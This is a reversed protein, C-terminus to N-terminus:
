DLTVEARDSRVRLALGGSFRLELGEFGHAAALSEDLQADWDCHDAYYALEVADSGLPVPLDLLDNFAVKLNGSCTLTLREPLDEPGPWQHDRQFVITMTAGLPDTGLIAVNYLNHVDIARGGTVIEAGGAGLVFNRQMAM